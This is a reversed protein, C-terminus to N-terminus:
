QGKMRQKQVMYFGMSMLTAVLLVILVLMIILVVPGNFWYARRSLTPIARSLSQMRWAGDDKAFQMNAKSPAVGEQTGDRLVRLPNAYYDKFIRVFDSADL